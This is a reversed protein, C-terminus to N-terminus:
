FIFYLINLFICYFTWVPGRLWKCLVKGNIIMIFIWCNMCGLIQGQQIWSLIWIGSWSEWADTRAFTYSLRLKTSLTLQRPGAEVMDHCWWAGVWDFCCWNLFAIRTWKMFSLQWVGSPSSTGGYYFFVCRKLGSSGGRHLYMLRIARRCGKKRKENKEVSGSESRRPAKLPM